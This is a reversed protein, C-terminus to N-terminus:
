IQLFDEIIEVDKLGRIDLPASGFLVNRCTPLKLSKVLKFLNNNDMNNGMASKPNIETDM